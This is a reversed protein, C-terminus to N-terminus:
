LSDDPALATSSMWVMIRLAGKRMALKLAGTGRSSYSVIGMAPLPGSMLEQRKFFAQRIYSLRLHTM